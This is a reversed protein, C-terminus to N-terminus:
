RALAASLNAIIEDQRAIRAQLAAIMREVDDPAPAAPTPQRVLSAGLPTLAIRFTRRGAIDRTIWGREEMAMLCGSLANTTRHGTHRAVMPTALGEASEVPGQALLALITAQHPTLTTM